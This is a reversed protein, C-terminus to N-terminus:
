CRTHKLLYMPERERERQTNRTGQDKEEKPLTYNSTSAQKTENREKKKEVSKIKKHGKPPYM